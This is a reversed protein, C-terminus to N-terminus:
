FKGPPEREKETNAEGRKETSHNTKEPSPEWNQAEKGRVVWPTLNM